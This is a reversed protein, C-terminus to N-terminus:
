GPHVAEGAPEPTAHPAAATRAPQVREVAFRALTRLAARASALYFAQLHFVHWRGQHVELRCDVGHRTAREALRTSDSLLIEQDGTQVLMPPLGSLDAELPRHAMVTPPCGYWSVGQEVWDKRVMPDIGANADIAPGGFSPDAVPSILMLGAPAPRGADRLRLALALALAAGASDGALVIGASDLGSQLLREYCEQVDDLPGPYPTEPVLRYDPVWVPLSSERALRSTISRHSFPGGLCFAGGHVYLIAGPGRPQAPSLVVASCAGLAVRQRRLGAVGPMPASLLTAVTRQTRPSWPPGILPKFATRIFGRLFAANARELLGRPEAVAVGAAGGTLPRGLKYAHLSSFRTLWRYSLSFGPWNISNRGNDDIYWSKCGTWISQALRRQIAQGFREFRGADVEIETAGGAQMARWCRMVHAVQSELMYVISNHGLNTNPGYLMFFNPFGPVTMGLYATTGGRWADNLDQGKRGIIRMPSLFESAKFGTGYIIADVEHLKGDVTEIGGPAIRRIAETLLSVNPRAMAALYDSSLLIRKCGIPYSPTLRGRLLPDAVQQELMRRFPRGAALKLLGHFRTFALARSEYALYIWGRHLRMLWPIRRFLAKEWSTYARDPRPIMFSPSRQFVLLQSAAAALPPVFQTASAGTGVVAVRKGELPCAHDWQASHFSAGSFHEIGDLQPIVPRSLQGTASVLLRAYLTAGDALTVRWCARREDYTAQAVAANFRVHQQLDYKRVCHRLYQHIDPQSAFARAWDPNPEFSFSYLHSPVDCAAGPYTNDRWVGGVDAAKELVLFDTVGAKRLAIAMGIGGFGSGIIIAQLLPLAAPVPAQDPRSANTM